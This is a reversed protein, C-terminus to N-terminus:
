GLTALIQELADPDVPKVMHQDFGAELSRRRDADQGYGTMAILLTERFRPDQRLRRAVEYGSMGPLGVDLLVAEPRSEEAAQLADPGNYALRVEHGSLRLIMAVSEAADVNDDVVLVRRSVPAQAPPPSARAPEPRSADLVGPLRVVFESGKGPGASHATVTGGHLEVLRRVVTLGIGLGGRSRELSRDGQAFLDFLRSLLEAPIGAGEDRVRLVAENGQREATVWIRGSRESFKAANHLLNSVVQALRTPDGEIRLPEPPVAIILEQGQADVMPQATEVGRAIASALDVPEIRLEIRGRIIRSVDLLDDVLRVMHQVQRETMERAMEFSEPDVGPLKMLQLANRIPALPNRLEHALMAIWENKQRDADRLEGYLRANEIAISARQALDEAVRLDDPGLRRGSEATVFTLAGVIRGRPMLPVCISSRLGLERLVQLHGEDQAVAALAADPVEPLLEPRGTRVVQAPGQLGTTRTPYRRHLEQAREAQAADAHAIAVRHLSGDPELMDVACWDAFQPVALGAV